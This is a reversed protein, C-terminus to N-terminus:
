QYRRALFFAIITSYVLGLILSGFLMGIFARLALQGLSYSDAMPENAMISPGVILLLVAFFLSATIAYVLSISLGTQLGAKFNMEAQAKRAKIGLYIALIAAANFLLPALINLKSNPALPFVFHTIIVWFIIVLTIALGYKIAIRM